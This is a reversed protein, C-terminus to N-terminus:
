QLYQEIADMGEIYEVATNNSIKILTPGNILLESASGPMKNSEETTAFAKNFGSNMDVYYISKEGNTNRYSTFLSKCLDAIDKNSSDYYLVLYEGSMSFSRGIITEGVSVNEDKKNTNNKTSNKNTIYITLLYFLVFVLVTGAIIFWRSDISSERNNYKRAARREEKKRKDQNSKRRAM